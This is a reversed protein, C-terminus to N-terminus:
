GRSDRASDAIARGAGLRPMWRPVRACYEEYSAGFRRRLAPEELYVVGFHYVAAMMASYILLVGQRFALAEGFLFLVAALYMPNRVRRYIGKAVLFRTPDVPAPVGRGIRTLDTLSRLYIVAGAAMLGAGVYQYYGAPLRLTQGFFHALLVPFLVAVTGPVVMIFLVVTLILKAPTPQGRQLVAM